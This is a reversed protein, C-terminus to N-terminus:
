KVVQVQQQQNFYEVRALADAYTTLPDLDNRIRKIASRTISGEKRYQKYSKPRRM